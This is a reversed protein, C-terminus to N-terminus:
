ARGLLGERYQNGIRRYGRKEPGVPSVSARKTITLTLTSDGRDRRSGVHKWHLERRWPVAGHHQGPRGPFRGDERIACHHGYREAENTDDLM